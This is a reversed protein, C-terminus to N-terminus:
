CAGDAAPASFTLEDFDIEELSVGLHYAFTQDLIKRFERRAESSALPSSLNAEVSIGYRRPHCARCVLGGEEPIFHYVGSEHVGCKLCRSLELHYGLLTLLNKRLSFDVLEENPEGLRELGTRLLGFVGSGSQGPRIVEALLKVWQLALLCKRYNAQVQEFSQILECRLLNGLAGGGSPQYELRLCHVFDLLGAFRRKSKKASHAILEVRGHRSTLFSVIRHAEGYSTSRLLFGDDRILENIQSAM